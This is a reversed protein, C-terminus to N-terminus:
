DVYLMENSVLLAQAYQEWRAPGEGAPKELFALALKVENRDPERAFLLEYARRIRKEDREAPDETLRKALAKARAIVFPSNLAYLKQVATTTTARKEAHVNADPYDFQMLTRNLELRSIRAQLTRRLNGPDDLEMSKGSRFDLEGSVYLMSDRLQEVSVRKRNMRWLQQNAADLANNKAHDRSDQRYAASTVIERVLAKVSWGQEM